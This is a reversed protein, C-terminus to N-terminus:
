KMNSVISSATDQQKKMINSLIQEFQSRRDMLMQLQMQQQQSLDGLSDLQQNMQAAVQQLQGYTLNAPASLRVPRKSQATAASLRMLESSLSQCGPTRCPQQKMGASASAVDRNVQNLLNRLQQKAENEAKVQDMIQQLDQDMDNTAQMLVIFAMAEIDAGAPISLSPSSPKAPSLSSAFRARIQSQLAALDPPRQAEMRAQQEAWSRASPQLSSHLVTFRQTLAPALPRVAEPRVAEMRMSSNQACLYSTGPLLVLMTLVAIQAGPKV